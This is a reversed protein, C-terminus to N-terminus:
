VKEVPGGKEAWDKFAGLNRVNQYGLDQLVKGALASRGGSACYVIVPRERNFEPNHYPSDPDARFELMGRSVHVAGAVKGSAQLEPLDRVDVVLAKKDKILAMAEDRDIKSVSANAAALMEKISTPM